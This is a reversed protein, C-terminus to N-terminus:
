SVAKLPTDQPHLRADVAEKLKQRFVEPAFKEAQSRCDQPSILDAISEFREVAKILAEKKQKPFFVGTPMKQVADYGRVTELAGGAGYAIVPTGCAQAEVPIIGFDEEAAFVFAKARQMHDVMAENGQYGLLTINAADKAINEIKSM